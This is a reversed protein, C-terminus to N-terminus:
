RVADAIRAAMEVANVVFSALTERQADRIHASRSQKQLLGIAFLLTEDHAVDDGSAGQTADSFATSSVAKAAGNTSKKKKGKPKATPTAAAAADGALADVTVSSSAEAPASAKKARIEKQGQHILKLLETETCRFARAVHIFDPNSEQMVMRSTEFGSIYSIKSAKTSSAHTVPFLKDAADAGTWGNKVRLERIRDGFETM